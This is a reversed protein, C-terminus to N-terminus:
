FGAGSKGPDGPCSLDGSRTFWQAKCMTAVFDFVNTGPTETPLGASGPDPTPVPTLTPTPVATNTPQETPTATPPLGTGAGFRSGAGGRGGNFFRRGFGLGCATLLLSTMIIFAVRRHM